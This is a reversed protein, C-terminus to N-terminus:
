ATITLYSKYDVKIKNNKKKMLYNKLNKLPPFSFFGPVLSFKLYYVNEKNKIEWNKTFNGIILIECENWNWWVFFLDILCKKITKLRPKFPLFTM